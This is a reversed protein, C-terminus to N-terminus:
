QITFSSSTRSENIQVSFASGVLTGPTSDLM